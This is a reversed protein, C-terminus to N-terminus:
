LCVGLAGYPLAGMLSLREVLRCKERRKVHSQLCHNGCNIAQWVMLAVREDEKSM